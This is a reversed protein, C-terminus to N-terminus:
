QDSKGWLKAPRTPRVKRVAQCAKNTQSEECSPLGQQDSTGWLEALEELVSVVFNLDTFRLNPLWYYYYCADYFFLDTLSFNQYTKEKLFRRSCHKEVALGRDPVPGQCWNYRAALPEEPLQWKLKRPMKWSYKITSINQPSYYEHIHWFAWEM